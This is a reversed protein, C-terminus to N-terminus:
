IGLFQLGLAPTHWMGRTLLSSAFGPSVRCRIVEKLGQQNKAQVLVQAIFSPLEPGEREGM